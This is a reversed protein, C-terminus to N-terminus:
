WLLPSKQFSSRKQGSSMHGPPSTQFSSEVREDQAQRLTFVRVEMEVGWIM